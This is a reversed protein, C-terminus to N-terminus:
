GSFTKEFNQKTVPCITLKDQSCTHHAVIGNPYVVFVTRGITKNCLACKRNYTINVHASQAKLLKYETNLTDMQSVYKAVKANRRNHLTNSLAYFLFAYVGNQQLNWNDPIKDLVEAPDLQPHSAYKKM